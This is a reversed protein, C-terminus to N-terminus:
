KVFNYRILIEHASYGKDFHSIPDIYDDYAYGLTIKKHIHLGASLMYSQKVRYGIGWWFLKNHEVRTGVQFSAPANPLYILLVSPTIVTVDDVNWHYLGDFYFHRYLRAEETTAMNGKYFGLKSQILQSVSAGLQLAKGTYSMGFGADYKFRNDAGALVPDAGLTETLKTKDLTYQQIKSEIGISFTGKNGTIHKALSLVIGKRSTPGTEDNYIYGGIGMKQKPLDFSGFVTATKPSGSIGSWQSRYSVGIINNEQVGAMSPNHLIGQMDYMSSTQLQQANTVSVFGTLIIMLIKNKM